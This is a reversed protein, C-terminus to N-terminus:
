RLAPLRASSVASCTYLLQISSSRVVNHIGLLLCNIQRNLRYAGVTGILRSLPEEKKARQKMTIEIWGGIDIQEHLIHVVLAHCQNVHCLLFNFKGLEDPTLNIQPRGSLQAPMEAFLDNM